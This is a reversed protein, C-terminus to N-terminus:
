PQPRLREPAVLRAAMLREPFEPVRSLGGPRAITEVTGECIWDDVKTVEIQWLAALGYQVRFVDGKEIKQRAGLDIAVTKNEPKAWVIRGTAYKPMAVSGDVSVQQENSNLLIERGDKTHALFRARVGYL